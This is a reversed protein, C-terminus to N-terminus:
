VKGNRSKRYISHEVSTALDSMTLLNESHGLFLRGSNKLNKLLSTIVRRQSVRDFYILVNRCFIYDFQGEFTINEILNLRKVRIHSKVVDKVRYLGKSRNFTFYKRLMDETLGDIRDESYEGKKVKILMDKDIDSAIITFKPLNNELLKIAITYVEEGSSSAAVWIIPDIVGKSRIEDVLYTFHSSERFFFTHNTTINRVLCEFAAKDGNKIIKYFEKLDKFKEKRIIRELKYELKFYKSEPINIGLRNYILSSFLAVTSRDIM